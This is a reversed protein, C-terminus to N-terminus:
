ATLPTAVALLGAGRPAAPLLWAGLYIALTLFALAQFGIVMSLM